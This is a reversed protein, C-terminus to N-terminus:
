QSTKIQIDRYGLEGKRGVYRLVFVPDPLRKREPFSDSGFQFDVFINFLNLVSPKKTKTLYYTVPALLITGYQAEPDERFCHYDQASFTDETTM